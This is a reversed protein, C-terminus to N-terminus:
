QVPRITKAIGNLNDLLKGHDFPKGSRAAAIIYHVALCPRPAVMMVVHEITYLDGAEALTQVAEPKSVVTRTFYDPPPDLLFAGAQCLDGPRAREVVLMLQDSQLTTGPAVDSSPSFAVGDRVDDTEGQYFRYGKDVFNPNVKWGDPYDIAFGRAADSYTAANAASAGALCSLLPLLFAYRRM